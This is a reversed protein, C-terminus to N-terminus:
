RGFNYSLKVTATVAQKSRTTVQINDYTIVEGTFNNTTQFPTYRSHHVNTMVTLSASWGSLANAVKPKNPMSVNSIPTNLSLSANGIFGIGRIGWSPKSITLDKDGNADEDQEGQWRTFQAGIGGQVGLTLNFGLLSPSRLELGMNGGILSNGKGFHVVEVPQGLLNTGMIGGKTHNRFGGASVDLGFMGTQGLGISKFTYTADLYSSPESTKFGSGNGSFPQIYQFDTNLKLDFNGGIQTREIGVFTMNLKGEYNTSGAPKFVQKKPADGDGGDPDDPGEGNRDILSVPNNAAFQYASWHAFEHVRPDISLFRALRPGYCRAGFDYHNGKGEYVEDDKENGNFAFRYDGGTVSTCSVTTIEDIETLVLNDLEIRAPAGSSQHYFSIVETTALASFNFNYSGPTSVITSSSGQTVTIPKNVFIVEFSLEYTNGINLGSFTKSADIQKLGSGISQARLVVSNAMVMTQGGIFVILLFAVRISIYCIGSNM